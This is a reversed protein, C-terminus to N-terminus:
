RLKDRVDKADGYWHEFVGIAHHIIELRRALTAAAAAARDLPPCRTPALSPSAESEFSSPSARDRTTPVTPTVRAEGTSSTEPGPSSRARNSPPSRRPPAALCRPRPNPPTPEVATKTTNKSVIYMCGNTETVRNLPLWLSLVRTGDEGVADDLSYDRHPVGFNNGIYRKGSACKELKFAAVSPELVCEGGLLVEAHAFLRDIVRWAVDSVFVCAPPWSAAVLADVCGPRLAGVDERPVVVDGWVYGDDELSRVHKKTESADVAAVGVGLDGGDAVSCGHAALVGNWYAADFVSPSSSCPDADADGFADWAANRDDKAPPVDEIEAAAYELVTVGAREDRSALRCPFRAADAGGLKGVVREHWEKPDFARETSSSSAPLM